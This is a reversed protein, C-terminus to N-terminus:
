IEDSGGHIYLHMYRIIHCLFFLGFFPSWHVTTKRCLQVTGVFKWFIFCIYVCVYTTIYLCLPIYFILFFIYFQESVSANISMILSTQSKWTGMCSNIHRVMTLVFGMLCISFHFWPWTLYVMERKEEREREREWNSREAISFLNSREPFVDNEWYFVNERGRVWCKRERYTAVIIRFGRRCLLFWYIYICLYFYVYVFCDM